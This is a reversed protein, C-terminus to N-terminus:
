LFYKLLTTNPRFSIGIGQVGFYGSIIDVQATPPNRVSLLWCGGLFKHVQSRDALPLLLEKVEPLLSMQRGPNHMLMDFCM